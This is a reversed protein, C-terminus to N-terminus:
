KVKGTGGLHNYLVMLERFIPNLQQLCCRWCGAGLVWSARLFYNEAEVQCHGSGLALGETSDSLKAKCITRNDPPHRCSSRALFGPQPLTHGKGLALSPTVPRKHPPEALGPYARLMAVPRPPGLHALQKPPRPPRRELGSSGQRRWIVLKEFKGKRPGPRAEFAALACRREQGCLPPWVRGAGGAVKVKRRKQFYFEWMGAALPALSRSARPSVNGNGGLAANGPSGTLRLASAPLGASGLRGALGPQPGSVPSRFTRLSRAPSARGCFSTCRGCAGSCGGVWPLGRREDYVSGRACRSAGERVGPQAEAGRGRPVGRGAPRASTRALHPEPDVALLPGPPRRPAPLGGAASPLQAPPRSRSRDRAHARAPTDDTRARSHSM